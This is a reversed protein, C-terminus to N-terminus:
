AKTKKLEKHIALLIDNRINGTTVQSVFQMRGIMCISAFILWLIVQNEFGFAEQVIAGVLTILIIGSVQYLTSLWKYQEDDKTIELKIGMANEVSEINM